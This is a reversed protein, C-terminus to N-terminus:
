VKKNYKNLSEQMADLWKDFWEKELDTEFSMNRGENIRKQLEDPHKSFYKNMRWYRWGLRFGLVKICHILDNM